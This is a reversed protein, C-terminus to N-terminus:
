ADALEERLPEKWPLRIQFTTGEGLTSAVDVTGGLEKTLGAVISLGLGSRRGTRSSVFPEFIHKQLHSPIGPGTDRCEVVLTDADRSFTVEFVGPEGSMAERSNRALNFIIRKLKGEDVRLVGQTDLRVRAESHDSEFEHSLSERLEESLLELSVTREYLTLEGRAYAVVEGTMAQIDEFQKQIAQVYLERRDADDTRQLLQLYGSSITLPTKLDHMVGGLMAGLATVRDSRERRTRERVVLLSRALQGAVLQLLKADEEEFLHHRAPSIGLELLGLVQDKATMPVALYSGIAAADHLRIPGFHPDDRQVIVPALRQISYQFLVGRREIAISQGPDDATVLYSRTEGEDIYSVVAYDAHLLALSIQGVVCIEEERTRAGSLKHQLDSLANLQQIRQELHDHADTLEINSSVQEFYYRFNELLLSISSAISVLMEEDAVTFYPESVKNVVQVVGLLGGDSDVLPVCIVAKTRFGTIQDFALRWRPDRRADKVNLPRRTAACVGALGDGIRLRIEELKDGILTRAVIYDTDEQRLYLAGLQGDVMRVARDLLLNIADSPSGRKALTEGIERMWRLREEATEAVTSLEVIAREALLAREKWYSLDDVITGSEMLTPKDLEGPKAHERGTAPDFKM